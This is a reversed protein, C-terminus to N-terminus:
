HITWQVAITALAGHTWDPVPEGVRVAVREGFDIARVFPFDNENEECVGPQDVHLRRRRKPEFGYPKIGRKGAYNRSIDEDSSSDIASEAMVCEYPKKKTHTRMHMTLTGRDSFCKSCVNCEYPDGKTHTNMIHNGFNLSSAKDRDSREIEDTKRDLCDFTCNPSDENEEKITKIEVTIFDSGPITYTSKQDVEVEVGVESKTKIATKCSFSGVVRGFGYCGLEKAGLCATAIFTVHSHRGDQRLSHMWIEYKFYEYPKENTHTRMHATLHKRITFSKNCVDCEYPDENTHTKMIHNGLYLSSVKDRDSREIEDTKRDLFDFTCNPSDENEEKITKIEVTIFDSGPITYTSKQDVEDGVESKTKIATKCSFSGIDLQEEKIRQPNGVFHDLVSSPSDEKEGKITSVEVSTWGPAPDAYPYNSQQIIEEPEKKITIKSWDTLDMDFTLVYESWPTRKYLEEEINRGEPVADDDLNALPEEQFLADRNFHGYYDEANDKSGSSIESISYVIDCEYPDENTHTKMIHNGLYLPSVIDLQEDKIRQPNGVFHDSVSSPSDKKEGKITTVDVSMWGPAPDACAYNIQQIEEEPEKKITIKTCDTLDM